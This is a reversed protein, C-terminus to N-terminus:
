GISAIARCRSAAPVALATRSTATSIPAAASVALGLRDALALYRATAAADHDRTIPKSPTSVRGCRVGRIWEDRGVLVPHALSAIGGADHIRRSSKRPRAGMARSSRPAARHGAM